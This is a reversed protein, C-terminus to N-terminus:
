AGARAVARRRLWALYREPPMFCLTMCVSNTLGAIGVCVTFPGHNLPNLGLGLLVGSLAGVSLWTGTALAWLLFRNCVAAEVLGLRLRRRASLFYRFSEAATWGYSALVSSVLPFTWASANRIGAEIGSAEVHAVVGGVPALLLWVGVGCVVLAWASGPRFVRWTFFYNMSIAVMMASLTVFYVPAVGPLSLEELLVALLLLPYGLAPLVLTEIALALEPFQRSRRALALLRLGVVLSVISQVCVGIVAGFLM